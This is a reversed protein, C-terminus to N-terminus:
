RGIRDGAKEGVLATSQTPPPLGAPREAFFDGAREHARLLSEVRARMAGDGTCARDLYEARRSQSLVLAETFVVFDLDPSNNMKPFSDSNHAGSKMPREFNALESSIGM